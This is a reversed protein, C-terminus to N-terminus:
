RATTQLQLNRAAALLAQQLQDIHKQETLYSIIMMRMASEGNIITDSIWRQGDRTVQDVIDAHAVAM